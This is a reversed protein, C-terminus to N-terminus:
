GEGWPANWAHGLTERGLRELRMVIGAPTADTLAAKLEECTDRYAYWTRLNARMKEISEPSHLSSLANERSVINEGVHRSIWTAAQELQRLPVPTVAVPGPEATEPAPGAGAARADAREAPEPSTLPKGSAATEAAGARTSHAPGEPRDGQDPPGGPAPGGGPGGGHRHDFEHLLRELQRYVLDPVIRAMRAAVRTVARRHRAEEAPDAFRREAGWNADATVWTLLNYVDEHLDNVNHGTRLLADVALAADAEHGPRRWQERKEWLYSRASRIYPDSIRVDAKLLALVCIATAPVYANWAAIGHEAENTVVQGRLWMRADRATDAAEQSYQQRDQRLGFLISATIWPLRNSYFWGHANRAQHACTALISYRHPEPELATAEFDLLLGLVWMRHCHEIDVDLAPDDPLADEIGVFPEETHGECLTPERHNEYDWRDRLFKAIRYWADKFEETGHNPHQALALGANVAATTDGSWTHDVRLTENKVLNGLVTLLHWEMALRRSSRNEGEIDVLGLNDLVARMHQDEAQQLYDFAVRSPADLGPDAERCYQVLLAALSPHGISLSEDNPQILKADALEKLAAPPVIQACQEANIDIAFLGLCAFWYLWRRAEPDALGRAGVKGAIERVLEGHEPIRHHQQHFELAATALVLDGEALDFVAASERETLEGVLLRIVDDGNAHVYFLQSPLNLAAHWVSEWGTALVRLHLGLEERLWGIMPFIEKGASINAQLNDIVVLYTDRTPATLLTVLLSEAGDAPDTLDLWVLGRREARLRSAVFTASTTKGSAPRGVLLVDHGGRLLEEMDGDRAPRRYRVSRMAESMAARSLPKGNGIRHPRWSRVRTGKNRSRWQESLAWALLGLGPFPGDTEAARQQAGIERREAETSRREEEIARGLTRLELYATLSRDDHAVRVEIRGEAPLPRFELDLVPEGDDFVSSQETRLADCAAAAALEMDRQDLARLFADYRPNDAPM